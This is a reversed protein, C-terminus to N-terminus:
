CTEPCPPAGANSRLQDRLHQVTLGLTPVILDPAIEALPELVFAREHLGPHPITLATSSLVEDGFLLLDLDITRPGWRTELDRNRGQRREIALLAHLLEIPALTTAVIAAANLFPAQAIHGFPATEHITSVAHLTVAPSRAIADLAHHIHQARPEINSGLGIAATSFPQSM